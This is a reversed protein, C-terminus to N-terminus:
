RNNLFFFFFSIPPPMSPNSFMKGILGNTDAVMFIFSVSNKTEKLVKFLWTSGFQDDCKGLCQLFVALFEGTPLLYGWSYVLPYPCPQCLLLLAWAGQMWWEKLPNALVAGKGPGPPLM